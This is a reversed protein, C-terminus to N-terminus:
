CAFNYSGKDVLYSYFFGAKVNKEEGFYIVRKAMFKRVTQQNLHMTKEFDNGMDTM